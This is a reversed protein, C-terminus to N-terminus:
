APAVPSPRQLLWVSMGGALVMTYVVQAGMGAAIIAPLGAAILATPLRGPAVGLRAGALLQPLPVAALVLAAGAVGAPTGTWWGYASAALVPGLDARRWVAVVAWILAIPMALAQWFELGAPLLSVGIRGVLAAGAPALATFGAFLLGPVALLVMALRAAPDGIPGDRLAAYTPPMPGIITALLAAGIGLGLLGVGARLRAAHSQDPSLLAVAGALFALALAANVWPSALALTGLALQLLEPARYPRPPDLPPQAAPSRAALIGGLLLGAAVLGLGVRIFWLRASGESQLMVLLLGIHDSGAGAVLSGAGIAAVMLGAVLPRWRAPPLLLAGVGGVLAVLVTLPM